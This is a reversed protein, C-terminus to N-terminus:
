FFSDKTFNIFLFNEDFDVLEDERLKDLFYNKQFWPDNKIKEIKLRQM